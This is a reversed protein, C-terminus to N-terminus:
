ILELLPWTLFLIVILSIMNFYYFADSQQVLYGENSWDSVAGTEDVSKFTQTKKDKLSCRQHIYEDSAKMQIQIILSNNWGCM